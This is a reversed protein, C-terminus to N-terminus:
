YDPPNRRFYTNGLDTQVDTNKPDLALVREYYTAAGTFDDTDYKTNGLATLADIDKPKLEVARQLYLAAKDFDRMQYFVAAANMQLDFDKPTRDAADMAQQALASTAAPSGGTATSAGGIEPHGPPLEDGMAMPDLPPATAGSSTSAASTQSLPAIAARESSLDNAMLFGLFLGLALGTLCFIVNKSM